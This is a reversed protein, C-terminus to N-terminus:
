FWSPNKSGGDPPLPPPRRKSKAQLVISHMACRIAYNELGRFGQMSLTCQKAHADRETSPVTIGCAQEVAEMAVSLEDATPPKCEIMWGMRNLLEDPLWQSEVIEDHTISLTEVQEVFVPAGGLKKRYIDQFAGAYLFWSQKLNELATSTPQFDHLTGTALQMIEDLIARSYNQNDNSNLRLKDVEDIDIVAPGRELTKLIEGITHSENRTSRMRWTGVTASYTPLGMLRAFQVVSWTKGSGSNGIIWAARKLKVGAVPGKFHTIAMAINALRRLTRRQGDSKCEKLLIKVDVAVPPTYDQPTLLTVGPRDALWRYYHFAENPRCICWTLCGGLGEIENSLAGMFELVKARDKFNMGAKAIITCVHLLWDDSQNGNRAYSTFLVEVAFCRM